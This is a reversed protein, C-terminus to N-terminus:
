IPPIFSTFLAWVPLFFYFFFESVPNGAGLVIFGFWWLATFIAGLILYVIAIWRAVKWMDRTM